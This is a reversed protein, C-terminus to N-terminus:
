RGLPLTATLGFLRSFFGVLEDWTVFVSTIALLIAFIFLIPLLYTFTVGHVDGYGIQIGGAQEMEEINWRLEPDSVKEAEPAAQTTM